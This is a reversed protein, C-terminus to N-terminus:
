NSVKDKAMKETITIPLWGVIRRPEIFPERLNSYSHVIQPQVQAKTPGTSQVLEKKSQNTHLPILPTFPQTIELKGHKAKPVSLIFMKVLNSPTRVNIEYM